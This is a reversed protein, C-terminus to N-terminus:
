TRPATAAANRTVIRGPMLETLERAFAEGGIKALAKSALDLNPPRHSLNHADTAV